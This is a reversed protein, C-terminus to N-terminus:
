SSSCTVFISSPRPEKPITCRHRQRPMSTATLHRMLLRKGTLRDSADHLELKHTARHQRIIEESVANHDYYFPDNFKKMRDELYEIATAGSPLGACALDALALQRRRINEITKKSHAM